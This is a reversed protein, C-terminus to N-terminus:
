MVERRPPQCLAGQCRPANFNFGASHEPKGQPTPVGKLIIFTASNGGYLGSPYTFPKLVVYANHIPPTPPKPFGRGAVPPVDPPPSNQLVADSWAQADAATAKRLLGKRVADE